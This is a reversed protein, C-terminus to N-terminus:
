KKPTGAALSVRSGSQFLLRYIFSPKRLLKTPNKEYLLDRLMSNTQPRASMYNLLRLMMRSFFPRHLMPFVIQGGTTDLKIKQYLETEFRSLFSASFDQKEVAEAALQGALQGSIFAQPLGNGSFFEILGASDGTVLFGEGAVERKRIGLFLRSGQFNGIRRANRFIHKLEQSKELVSEFTDKLSVQHEQVYRLSMVLNVNCTGDPLPTIYFGGPMLDERLFLGTEDKRWDLNEFHARIGIASDEDTVKLGLQQLMANSSGTALILLRTQFCQGADSELEFGAEDRRIKRIRCATQVEAFPSAKIKQHLLLDLDWRSMSYCSPRGEVRDLPLFDISIPKGNSSYTHTRWIPNLQGNQWMTQLLDPDVRNMARISPSTLIDGCPKHRPFEDADLVLHRIGAKSLSFSASAGSPGAGLVCVEFRGSVPEM